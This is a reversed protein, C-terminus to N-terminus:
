IDKRDALDMQRNDAWFGSRMGFCENLINRAYIGAAHDGKAIAQLAERMIRNQRHMESEHRAM